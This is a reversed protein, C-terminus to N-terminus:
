LKNESKAHKLRDIDEVAETATWHRENECVGEIKARVATDHTLALGLLSAVVYLLVSVFVTSTGEVHTEWRRVPQRSGLYQLM